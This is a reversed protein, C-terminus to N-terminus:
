QDNASSLRRWQSLTLGDGTTVAFGAPRPRGPPAILFRADDGVWDMIGLSIKGKHAGALNLYDVAPPTAHENIRVKAHVMVQGGFTVKVENGTAIRAGFALWDARMDEGNTALRVASWTGELRRLLPTMEIDFGAVEVPTAVAATSKGAAPDAAKKGGTVRAPREASARRLRELAHGSGPRTSFGVPRSSGVLGLCITLQDGDLEFIGASSQGAEPGEVFAIDIRMPETTVDINFTGDYNAEPSEMRFRDGDILMRSQAFAAAPMDGGDVQLGVFHWEGELARLHEVHRTLAPWKEFGSQRAVVSQADALRFGAARAKAPTLRRAAPLHTIFARAAAADGANLAALLAKAQHRLHDLNPRAPLQNAV